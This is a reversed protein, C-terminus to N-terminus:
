RRDDRSRRLHRPARREGAASRHGPRQHRGGAPRARCVGAEPLWALAEVAIPGELTFKFANSVLNLVIQEAARACVEAASDVARAIDSLERLIQLRREGVVRSTTESVTGFIGGVKGAEDHVPAYCFTFYCEETYGSRELTVPLDDFYSAEGGAMVGNLM